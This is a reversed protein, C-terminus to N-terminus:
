SGRTMNDQFLYWTGRVETLGIVEHLDSMGRIFAYAESIEERTTLVPLRISGDAGVEPLITYAYPGGPSLSCVRSGLNTPDPAKVEGGIHIVAQEYAHASAAAASELM